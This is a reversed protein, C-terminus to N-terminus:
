MISVVYLGGLAFIIILGIKQRRPLQLAIVSRMPLLLILIDGIMDAGGNFYWSVRLNICKGGPDHNWAAAVPHCQVITATISAVAYCSVFTLLAYDLLRLQRGPFIRLYLLLISIKTSAITLKYFIQILYFIQNM